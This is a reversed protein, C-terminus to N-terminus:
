LNGQAIRGHEIDLECYFAEYNPSRGLFNRLLKDPEIAGGPELIERRFRLGVKPDDLGFQEFTSFLDQAFVRSWVYGYYGANYGGMVPLFSAAPMTGPV